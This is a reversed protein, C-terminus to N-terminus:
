NCQYYQGSNFKNYKVGSKTSDYDVNGWGDDYFSGVERGNTDYCRYKGDSYQHKGKKVPIDMCFVEMEGYCHRYRHCNGGEDPPVIHSITVDIYSFSLPLPLNLRGVQSVYTQLYSTDHVTVHIGCYGRASPVFNLDDFNHLNANSFNAMFLLSTTLFLKKM